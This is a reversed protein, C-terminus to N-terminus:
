LHPTSSDCSVGTEPEGGANTEADGPALLPILKHVPRLFQSKATRVTAVRISADPGPHVNLSLRSAPLDELSPEPIATLPEGILFHGPTLAVPDEPDDSMPLLPRSNLCAEIGTLLTTLEEFTLRQEGIIRRLHYKVSKVAAEWLGGFHPASPPNFKWTIGERSAAAFPGGGQKESERLLARLEHHAGVFNRGCDSYLEACRGRRAMFRRLAALFTDTSGDSAAELHVAKTVLCIFVAIYGKSTRQGRGRSSRLLIPGAYDIGSRYFPRCPTIRSLPLNGMKPQATQGKWRICTTCHRICSKVMHRGKLIWCEQRLTALTLQTGGHLCRKHAADVWLRALASDDPLIAPHKRDYTLNTVQLLGGVRLVGDPDLFPSLKALRSKSPVPQNEPSGQHGGHLTCSAGPRCWALVRLLRTLNSFREILSCSSGEFRRALHHILPETVEHHAESDVAEPLHGSSSLWEPGRWWLEFNVMETPYFGRSACDAPNEASRVHHWKALPVMRQIEAVRNAVYTPWRSPHRQIWSLTVSSDSWLHLGIDRLDLVKTIHDTLKALLFAACLELSPLSIRKLPAVRSKAVILSVTAVGREDLVRSYVVAAYARKSADAFGHIEITQNSGSIGLWRPVRITQLTPLQQQFKQWILEEREPLPADWDIKLLWLSQMLVKAVITVPALWGIPDFLQATGSLVARKTYGNNRISTAASVQFCDSSPLWQIGLVSHLTPSDWEVIGKREDISLGKLLERSNSAWKRLPFGGAMLLERVELQKLRAEPLSDAGTLVDDMYIDRLVTQSGRPYRLEELQALQRLCRIALYPACALGYTVTNLEYDLIGEKQGPRWVIRQWRRDEPHVLIQWYMKEIDASFVFRYWRWRLLVDALNPLLNPGRLLFDNLSKGNASPMSGNFVVRLKTTKSSERLVGHHPLYYSNSGSSPPTSSMHGLAEYTFEESRRFRSSLGDMTKVATHRSDGLEPTAKFPLRVIFRGDPHRAYTTSFHEEARIDDETGPITAEIEEQEWFRSLSAMLEQDVRSHHVPAEVRDSSGNSNSPGTGGTLIWGFHTEQAVPTHPPGKKVGELLILDYSEAGLLIDVPDSHHFVPDALKLGQVHPWSGPSPLNRPQYNSLKGPDILVRALSSQGLPGLVLVRATGLIVSSNSVHTSVQQVCAGASNNEQKSPVAEHILTHHKGECRQCRKSSKCDNLFQKCHQIFHQDQCLSCSRGSSSGKSVQHVKFSKTAAKKSPASEKEPPAELEECTQIRGLMFERLQEMTPIEKSLKVLDEWERRSQQDLRQTTLEVIWDEANNVPRDLNVLADVADFTEDFLRQLEVASEKRVPSLKSLLRIQAQVLKRRNEYRNELKEWAVQFNEATTKVNKLLAAASGKMCTKLYHLREVPSLTPDKIILSTFLDRYSPWDKYQGDFSPLPMKPLVARSRQTGTEGVTANSNPSERVTASAKLDSIMDRLLGSQEMHIQQVDDYEDEMIRPPYYAKGCKKINAVIRSIREGILQQNSVLDAM